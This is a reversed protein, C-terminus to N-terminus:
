LDSSEDLCFRIPLTKKSRLWQLLEIIIPVFLNFFFLAKYIEERHMSQLVNLLLGPKRIKEVCAKSHTKLM